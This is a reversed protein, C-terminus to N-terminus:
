SCGLLSRSVPTAATAAFHPRPTRRNRVGPGPANRSNERLGVPFNEYHARALRECYAFAEAVSRPSPQSGPKWIEAQISMISQPKSPSLIALYLFWNLKRRRNALDRQTNII